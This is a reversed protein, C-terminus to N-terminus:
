IVSLRTMVHAGHRVDALVFIINPRMAGIASLAALALMTTQQVSHDGVDDHVSFGGGVKAKLTAYQEFAV